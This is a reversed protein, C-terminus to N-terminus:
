LAEKRASRFHRFVFLIFKVGPEEFERIRDGGMKKKFASARYIEEDEFM